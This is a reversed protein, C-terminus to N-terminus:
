DDLQNGAPEKCTMCIERDADFLGDCCNSHTKAYEYAEDDMWADMDISWTIKKGNDCDLRGSTNGNAILKAIEARDLDNITLGTKIM